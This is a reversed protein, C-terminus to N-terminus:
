RPRRTRRASRSISKIESTKDDGSSNSISEALGAITPANFLADLPLQVQMSQMIRSVLQMAVLSHGGLAFFDDHIGPPTDLSLLKQWLKVLTGEVTTHPRAYESDQMSHQLEPIPLAKRDLKGSSTLPLADLPVFIGPIMANPLREALARRLARTTPPDTKELVIYAVLRKDGGQDERVLIAAEKIGPHKALVIRIEELEMRVGHIKVQDDLRGLFDLAGDPRYCGKDGTYYITEQVDDRFPNARFGSDAEKSATLYGLTNFPSRIVIEGAEGIGALTGDKNLILSQTQPYAQGIPQIGPPIQKGVIHFCKAVTAETPGYQNVITCSGPVRTRWAEVVTDALAEGGFSILRLAPLSVDDPLDLLWSQAVSPVVAMVTIAQRQLWRVVEAEEKHSPLCLVSASTLPLFIDFLAADFSISSLQAVRDDIGINFQNQQWSIYHGLGKHSGLIGKPKGTSGSTFFIYAPDDPEPVPLDIRAEGHDPTKTTVEGTASELELNPFDVGALNSEDQANGVVIQMRAHAIKLMTARRKAPLKADVPLMVSGSKLIGLM